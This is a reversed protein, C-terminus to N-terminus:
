PGGVSGEGAEARLLDALKEPVSLMPMHGSQLRVGKVKGETSAVMGEQVHPLICRDLECLLYTTPIHRWAAYKLPTAFATLDSHTTHPAWSAAIDASTDNHFAYIPDDAIVNGGQQHRPQDFTLRPDSLLTHLPPFLLLLEGRVKGVSSGDSVKCYHGSPERRRTTVM